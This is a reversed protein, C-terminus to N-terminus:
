PWDNAMEEQVRAWQIQDCELSLLDITRNYDRRAKSRMSLNDGRTNFAKRAADLLQQFRHDDM